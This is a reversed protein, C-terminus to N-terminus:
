PLITTYKLAGFIAFSWELRQYAPCAGGRRGCPVGRLDFKRPQIKAHSNRWTKRFTNAKHAPHVCRVTKRSCIRWNRQLCDAGLARATRAMERWENLDPQVLLSLNEGTAPHNGQGVYFHGVSAARIATDLCQRSPRSASILWCGGSPWSTSRLNGDHVPIPLCPGAGHPRDHALASSALARPMLFTSKRSM